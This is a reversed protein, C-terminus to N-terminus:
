IFNKLVEIRVCALVAQIVNRFDEGNILCAKSEEKNAEKNQFSLGEVEKFVDESKRIDEDAKSEVDVYLAM